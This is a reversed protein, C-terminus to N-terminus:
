ANLVRRITFDGLAYILTPDAQLKFNKKIRNIYVGAIISKEDSRSTEQEVISALVSVQLPTFGIQKAKEIKSKTWFKNYESAMKEMLDKASTNWYCEYTNPIFLALATKDSLGYRSLFVTDNLLNLISVSD